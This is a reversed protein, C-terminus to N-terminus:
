EPAPDPQPKYQPLGESGNLGLCTVALLDTVGLVASLWGLAQGGQEEQHSSHNSPVAM